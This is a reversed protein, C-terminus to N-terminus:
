YLVGRKWYLIGQKLHLIGRKLNYLLVAGAINGAADAIGNAKAVVAFNMM